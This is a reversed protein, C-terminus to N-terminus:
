QQLRVRTWPAGWSKAALVHGASAQNCTPSDQHQSRMGHCACMARSTGIALKCGRGGASSGQTDRALPLTKGVVRDHLDSAQSHRVSDASLPPAWLALRCVESVQLTRFTSGHSQLGVEAQRSSSSLCHCLAPPHLSHQVEYEGPGQPIYRWHPLLACCPTLHPYGGRDLMRQGM